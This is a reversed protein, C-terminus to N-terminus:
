IVLAAQKSLYWVALGTGTSTVRTLADKTITSPTMNSAQNLRWVNIGARVTLPDGSLAATADNCCVGIWYPTNASLEAVGKLTATKLGITASSFSAQSFPVATFKANEYRYISVMFTSAAAATTVNVRAETLLFKFPSPLVPFLRIQNATGQVTDTLAAYSLFNGFIAGEKPELAKRTLDAEDQNVRWNPDARRNGRSGVQPM